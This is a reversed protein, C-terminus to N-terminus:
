ATGWEFKRELYEELQRNFPKYFDTLWKRINAPMEPYGFEQKRDAWPDRKSIETPTIHKIGLFEHVQKLTVIEDAFYDDSNVILLNRAPFFQHWRRVQEIYIGRRICPYDPDTLYSIPDDSPPKGYYLWYHSWARQVPDRLLLIAKMNPMLAAIREQCYDFINLTSGEFRLKRSRYEPWLRLYWTIGRNYRGGCFFSPEKLNSLVLKPHKALNDCMSTTGSKAAGIIMFSPLQKLIESPVNERMANEHVPLQKTNM